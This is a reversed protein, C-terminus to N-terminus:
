GADDDGKQPAARNILWGLISVSSLGIIYAGAWEARPDHMLHDPIEGFWSDIFLPWLVGIGVAMIVALLVMRVGDRWPEKLGLWRTLGGLAGFIAVVLTQESFATMFPGTAATQAALTLVASFAGTAAHYLFKPTIMMLM